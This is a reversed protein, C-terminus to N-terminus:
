ANRARRQNVADQVAYNPMRPQGIRSSIQRQENQRAEAGENYAMRQAVLMLRPARRRGDGAELYGHLWALGVTYSM